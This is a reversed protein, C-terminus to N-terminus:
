RGSRHESARCPPVIIRRRRSRSAQRALCRGWHRTRRRMPRPSNSPAVCCNRPGAQSPQALLCLALSRLLAADPARHVAEALVAEAADFRKLDCLVNGLNGLAATLTPNIELARRYAAEAEALRGSTRLVVGLDSLIAANSHVSTARTLATAAAVADGRAFAVLGLVHLAEADAPDRALMREGLSRATELDGAAYLRRLRAADGERWDNWLTRFAAEVQRALGAADHLPSAAVRERLGGRLGALAALDSAAAVARAVYAQVDDTVWDDLGVAHLISAGFRGVSPRGALTVVPVGQWLAEITTTGANHPFPDLAIDIMGYAAWTRPQPTTFILELREREIGHAAFRAAFLDRGAPEAFPASNLVLRSGPVAHLISAWAAIVGNNLRVPRGFHGFTVFGNALAPLPAVPPMEAPPTYALPIRPLRVLRESFLHESGAPALMADALFADMCTLGSSYGHGLLYEVQVPAPRRAFVLLRNGATHGALDVLVDIRDRRILEALAADSQGVTNRWHDALARFRDTTADAVTVEAYCFLEVQNRDHATLLGEAFFAAAHTRFDPSVYGVRLRRDPTRDLDFETLAPALPKAHQADWNRYEAFIAEAPLDPRYNLCFLINSHPLAFDPRLAVAQRLAAEAEELRSQRMLALGLNNHANAHRSECAIAQRAAAEARRAHGALSLVWAMNSWADAFRPALRVATEFCAIAEPYRGTDRLINGLNSHGEAGNPNLAIAARGAVEADALRGLSRLIAAHNAHLEARRPACAIAATLYRDAEPFHGDRYAILGLVHTAEVDGADRALMREALGRAAALDGAGFLRHLAPVDGERWQEWLAQYATEVQRALGHADRLPSAAVRDRLGARLAALAGLDSAAAVARAVYGPADETVWDDLGVAHLISAGFRGVSPPGALTV